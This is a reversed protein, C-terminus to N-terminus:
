PIVHVPAGGAALALASTVKVSAVTVMVALPPLLPPPPAISGRQRTNSPSEVQRRMCRHREAVPYTSVDVAIRRIESRITPRRLATPARRLYKLMDKPKASGARERLFERATCLRM